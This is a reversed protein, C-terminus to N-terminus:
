CGKKGNIVILAHFQQYLKLDKPLNSQFLKQLNNYSFDSSVNYKKVLRKTYEDIVFIPKEGAYLLISDATEPGIGSLSLLQRRCVDLEQQFFNELSNYQKIIFNSFNYLREAKQKYFGSPRIAKELDKRRLKLIAELTLNEKLGRIAKEVNNWNTNQALIAGICIKEKELLSKPLRCWLEWQGLAKNEKQLKEYLSLIPNNKLRM